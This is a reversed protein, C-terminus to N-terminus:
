SALGPVYETVKERLQETTFPTTLYASASPCQKQVETIQKSQPATVIIPMRKNLKRVADVFSEGGTTRTNCEAFVIDYQGKQILQMAENADNAEDGRVAIEYLARTINKRVKSSSDVVLAKTEM